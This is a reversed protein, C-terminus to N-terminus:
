PITVLVNASEILGASAAGAPVVVAEGHERFGLAIANAIQHTNGYMSEYVIVAKM